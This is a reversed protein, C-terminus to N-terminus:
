DDGSCELHPTLAMWSLLCQALAAFAAPLRSFVKLTYPARQGVDGRYGLAATYARADMSKNDYM